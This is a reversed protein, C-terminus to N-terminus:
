RATPEEDNLFHIDPQGVVGASQMAERLGDHGRAGIGDVFQDPSSSPSSRRMPALRDRAGGLAITEAALRPALHPGETCLPDVPPV